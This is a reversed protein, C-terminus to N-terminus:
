ECRDLLTQYVDLRGGTKVYNKLNNTKKVNNLLANKVVSYNVPGYESLFLAAAGAVFPTAMSTGSYTGTKNGIVSSLIKYGPAFLDVSKLGYNSFYAKYGSDDLAAVSVINSLTHSAPYTATTDNNKGDNGAAAIFMVNHEKAYEIAERLSKSYSTSGWSNSLIDAGNDVAYKIAEISDASSGQGDKDMFKLAMISVKPAIGKIVGSDAAIIGACHTGHNHDDLPDGSSKVFNYGHIDDIYGNGDTDKGDLKEKTNIWMNNKLAYHNYDVGTDIVAVVIRSSGTTINWAKKANVGPTSNLGWQGSPIALDDDDDDDDDSPTFDLINYIYNPEIFEIDDQYNKKFLALEEQRLIVHQMGLLSKIIFGRGKNKDTFFSLGSGTKLKLLYENKVFDDAHSYAIFCISLFLFIIQIIRGM